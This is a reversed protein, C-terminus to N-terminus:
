SKGKRSDMSTGTQWEDSINWMLTVKAWDVLIENLNRYEVWLYLPVYTPSIDLVEEIHKLYEQNYIAYM